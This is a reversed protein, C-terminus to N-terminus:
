RMQASESYVEGDHATDATDGLGEEVRMGPTGPARDGLMQGRLHWRDDTHQWRYATMGQNGGGRGWVCTRLCHPNHAVLSSITSWYITITLTRYWQCATYTAPLGAVWALPYITNCCVHAGPNWACAMVLKKCMLHLLNRKVTVNVSGFFIHFIYM